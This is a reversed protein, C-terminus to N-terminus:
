PGSGGLGAGAEPKSGPAPPIGPWGLVGRTVAWERWRVVEWELSRNRCQCCGGFLAHAAISHGWPAQGPNYGASTPDFADPAPLEAM